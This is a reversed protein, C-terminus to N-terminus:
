LVGVLVSLCKVFALDYGISRLAYLVASLERKAAKRSTAGKPTNISSQYKAVIYGALKEM